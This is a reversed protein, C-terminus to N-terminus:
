SFFSFPPRFVAEDLGAKLGDATDYQVCGIIVGLYVLALVPWLYPSTVFGVSIFMASLSVVFAIFMWLTTTMAVGILKKPVGGFSIAFWASGLVMVPALLSTIVTAVASPPTDLLGRWVLASALINIWFVKRHKQINEAVFALEEDGLGATSKLFDRLTFYLFWWIPDIKKM